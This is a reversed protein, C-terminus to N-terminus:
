LQQHQRVFAELATKGERAPEGHALLLLDFDLDLLLRYATILGRKTDAPDDMLSDPVFTLSEVGGRVV